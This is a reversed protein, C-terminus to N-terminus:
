CPYKRLILCNIQNGMVQSLFTCQFNTKHWNSQKSIYKLAYSIQASDNIM